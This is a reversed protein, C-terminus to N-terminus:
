GNPNCLRVVPHPQVVELNLWDQAQMIHAECDAYTCSICVYTCLGWVHPHQSLFSAIWTYEMVVGYLLWSVGPCCEGAAAAAASAASSGCYPWCKAAQAGKLRRGGM